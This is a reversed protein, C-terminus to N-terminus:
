TQADCESSTSSPPREPADSRSSSSSNGRSGHDDTQLKSGRYLHLIGIDYTQSRDPVLEISGAPVTDIQHPKAIDSNHSSGGEAVEANTGDSTTDRADTDAAIKGYRKKRGMTYGELSLSPTSGFCELQVPGFRNDAKSRLYALTRQQVLRDNSDSSNTGPSPLPLEPALLDFYEIAPELSQLQAPSATNVITPLYLQLYLHYTYHAM